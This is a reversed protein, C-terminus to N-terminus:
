GIGYFRRNGCPSAGASRRVNRVLQYADKAASDSPEDLASISTRIEIKRNGVHLTLLAKGPDFLDVNKGPPDWSVAPEAKMRKFLNSASKVVESRDDSNVAILDQEKVIPRGRKISGCEKYIRDGMFRYQEYETQTLSTRSLHLEVTVKETTVSDDVVDSDFISCGTALCALLFLSFKSKSM